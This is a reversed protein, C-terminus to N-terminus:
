RARAVQQRESLPAPREGSLTALRFALQQPSYPLQFIHTPAADSLTELPMRVVKAEYRGDSLATIQLEFDLHAPRPM